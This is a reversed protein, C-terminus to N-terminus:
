AAYNYHVLDTFLYSLFLYLSMHGASKFFMLDWLGLNLMMYCNDQIEPCLNTAYIEYTCTFINAKLNKCCKRDTGKIKPVDYPFLSYTILSCGWSFTYTNSNHPEYDSMWDGRCIKGLIEQSVNNRTEFGNSVIM